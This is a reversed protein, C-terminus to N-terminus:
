TSSGPSVSKRSYSTRDGSIEYSRNCDIRLALWQLSNGPCGHCGFSWLSVCASLAVVFSRIPKQLPRSLSDQSCDMLCNLSLRRAIGPSYGESVHFWQSVSRTDSRGQICAAATKHFLALAELTSKVHGPTPPGQVPEGPMWPEMQWVCDNTQIRTQSKDLNVFAPRRSTQFITPSSQQHRLPVPIVGCGRFAIESLLAVMECYREAPMVDATSTRRMAFAAGSSDEARLVSAGSFGGGVESVTVVDIGYLAAISKAEATNVERPIM